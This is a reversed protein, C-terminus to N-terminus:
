LVIVDDDKAQRVKIDVDPPVVGQWRPSASAAGPPAGSLGPKPAAAAPRQASVKLGIGREVGERHAKGERRGVIYAVPLLMTLLTALLRHPNGPTDDIYGILGYILLAIVALAILVAIFIGMFRWMEDLNNKKM